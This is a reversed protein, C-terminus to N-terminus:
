KVVLACANGNLTRGWESFDWSNYGCDIIQIKAEGAGKADINVGKYFAKQYNYGILRSATTVSDDFAKETILNANQPVASTNFGNDELLKRVTVGKAKAYDALAKAKDFALTSQEVDRNFEEAAQKGKTDKYAGKVIDTAHNRVKLEKALQTNDHGKNVFINKPMNMVKDFMGKLTDAKSGNEEGTLLKSVTKIENEIDRTDKCIHAAFDPNVTKKAENPLKNYCLQASLSEILTACGAAYVQMVHNCVPKAKEVAEGSLMVSHAYHNYTFEFINGNETMSPKKCLAEMEGQVDEFITKWENYNGTLSAIKAIKDANSLKSAYIEKIKKNMAETQTKFRVFTNYFSQVGLDNTLEAKISAESADIKTFLKDVKDNLDDVKKEIRDETKEIFADLLGGILPSVFKGYKTTEELVKLLTSSTIQHASLLDQNLSITNDDTITTGSSIHTEAAFATTAAMTSVSCVTIASLIAAIIKTKINNKKM